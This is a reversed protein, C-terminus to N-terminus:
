ATRRTKAPMRRFLALGVCAILFMTLSAPEPASSTEASVSVNDIVPGWACFECGTDVSAFTLTSSASNATFNFTEQAWGMNTFSYSTTDFLYTQTSAGAGVQLSKVAPAGGPNGALWFTVIYTQGNVTDFTQAIAGKTSGDMDISSSGDQGTWPLGGIYDVNGFTVSWAALCTSGAVLEITGTTPSCAGGTNNEFSGNSFTAAALPLMAALWAVTLFRACEKSGGFHMRKNQSGDRTGGLRLRRRM